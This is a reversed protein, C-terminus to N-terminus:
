FRLDKKLLEIENSIKVSDVDVFCYPLYASKPNRMLEVALSAGVNGAGVIAINKKKPGDELVANERIINRHEYLYQYILRTIVTTLTIGGIALTGYALRMNFMTIFLRIMLFISEVLCDAFMLKLYTKANAYRWICTYMGRFIRFGM